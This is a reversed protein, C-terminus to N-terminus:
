GHPSLLRLVGGDYHHEDRGFWGSLQGNDWEVLANDENVHVVRGGWGQRNEV